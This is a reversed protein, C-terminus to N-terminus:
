PHEARIVVLEESAENRGVLGSERLWRLRSRLVPGLPVRARESVRADLGADSLRRLTTDSDCLGSHVMLLLGGPRLAAPAAVCVRDLVARGDYGADWARASGHGPLRGIPSPVYPPNCIVLDYSRGPLASLLDSRQVTVRRRHLLANLRATLVARRAIDVATVRAGLRAAHLALAGSGTGLDLVDAGPRVDERDLATMLLRTDHQPAYVGPLTLLRDPRTPEETLETSM